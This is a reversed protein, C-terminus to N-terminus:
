LIENYLAIVETATLARNFIHVEDISGNFCSGGGGYGVWMSRLSASASLSSISGDLVGNIYVSIASGTLVVVAHHWTNIALTSTTVLSNWANGSSNSTLIQLKNPYWQVIIGGYTSNDSCGLLNSFSSANAKFWFSFSQVSNSSSSYSSTIQSTSGNFVACRGFRGSGYTVSTPTGHYNGSEDLANDEFRYLSKGSGDLFPDIKNLISMEKKPIGGLVVRPKPSLRMIPSKDKAIGGLNTNISGLYNM